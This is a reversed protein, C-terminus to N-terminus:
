APRLPREDAMMRLLSVLARGSFPKPLYALCGLQEAERLSEADDRVSNVIVPLNSGEARLARLLDLGSRGELQVDLLLCLAGAPPSALFEEASAYSSVEFGGVRLVRGLATREDADDEIVVVLSPRPV